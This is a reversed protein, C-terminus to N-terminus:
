FSNITKTAPPVPKIPLWKRRIRFSEQRSAL